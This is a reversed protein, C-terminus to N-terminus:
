GRTAYVAQRFQGGVPPSALVWVVVPRGAAFTVSIYDGLMRGTTTRPMWSLQMSQASLRRLAGFRSGVAPARVLEAVMGTSLERYYAIAVQGSAPDIGVTPLVASPGSTVAAPPSWTIGDASTAALVSSTAQGNPCDHWTAVLRGASDAAAAPLPFVRFGPVGCGSTPALEAIRLPPAFSRGGDTSRSASIAFRQTEWLYVLVLDGNPRVVPIVGVAPQAGVDTPTSWTQGGDDTWTLALADEDASHTYTLYCRGYFPSSRGNDCAIWEKDFAIGEDGGAANEEAAVRANSWSAGDPSSNIALRTTTGDIALSAALWLGHAADFAVVPDSARESPGPPRSATTLGPLLGNKWSRGGDVSTAYGIDDAGGDVRRGVQFVAVTTGGQTSSDPEVETQHQSAPNTYPDISIRRSVVECDAAVRDVADATVTDVGPGCAVSDPGSGDYEVSVLDTGPGADVTDRGPGAVLLDNGARGTLVDNGGRGFITDAGPTGVLREARNTGQITKAGAAAAGVLLAAVTLLLVFRRM